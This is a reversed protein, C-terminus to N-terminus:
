KQIRIFDFLDFLITNVREVTKKDEKRVEEFQRRINSALADRAKLPLKTEKNDVSMFPYYRNIYFKEVEKCRNELGEIWKIIVRLVQPGKIKIGKENVENETYQEVNESFKMGVLNYLEYDEGKENKLTFLETMDKRFETSKAKSLQMFYNLTQKIQKSINETNQGNFTIGALHLMDFTMDESKDVTPILKFLEPEVSGGEKLPYKKMLFEMAEKCYADYETIIQYRGESWLKPYRLSIYEMLKITYLIMQDSFLFRAQPYEIDGKLYLAFSYGAIDDLSKGLWVIVRTKLLELNGDAGELLKLNYQSNDPVGKPPLEKTSAAREM